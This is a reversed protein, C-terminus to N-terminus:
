PGNEEKPKNIKSELLRDANKRIWDERPSHGEVTVTQNASMGVAKPRNIESRLDAIDKRSLLYVCIGVIASCILAAKWIERKLKPMMEALLAKAMPSESAQQISEDATM